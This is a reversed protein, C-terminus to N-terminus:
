AVSAYHFSGFEGTAGAGRWFIALSIYATTALTASASLSAMKGEASTVKMTVSTATVEASVAYVASAPISQQDRYVEVHNEVKIIACTGDACVTLEEFTSGDATTHVALGACGGASSTPDALKSITVGVTYHSPFPQTVVNFRIEGYEPDLPGGWTGSKTVTTGSADCRYTSKVVTWQIQANASDCGPGPYLAAYSTLTPAVALVTTATATATVTPTAVGPHFVVYVPNGHPAQSLMGLSLAVLLLATIVTIASVRVVKKVGLARRVWEMDYDFSDARVPRINRRLLPRLSEPLQEATPIPMGGVLVPIILLNRRLATEAEFRPFSTGAANVHDRWSPSMVVIMAECQAIAQDIAQAFDAGPLITTVDMFVNDRPIHWSQVLWDRIRGAVDAADERRYSIFVKQVRAM